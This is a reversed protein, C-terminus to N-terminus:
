KKLEKVLEMGTLLAKSFMSSALTFSAGEAFAVGYLAAYTTIKDKKTATKDLTVVRKTAAERFETFKSYDYSWLIGAVGYGSGRIIERYDEEYVVGKEASIATM